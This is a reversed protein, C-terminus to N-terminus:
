EDNARKDMDALAELRAARQAETSLGKVPYSRVENESRSGDLCSGDFRLTAYTNTKPDFRVLFFTYYDRATKVQQVVQQGQGKWHYFDVPRVIPTSTPKSAPAQKTTKTNM